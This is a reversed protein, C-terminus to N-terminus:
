VNPFAKKSDEITEIIEKLIEFSRKLFDESFLETKQFELQLGLHEEIGKTIELLGTTLKQNLDRIFQILESQLHELDKIFDKEKDTM